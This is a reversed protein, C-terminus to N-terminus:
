LYILLLQAVYNLMLSTLIENASFHTKLFAVIAAWAMGGVIAFVIMLPILVIAPLDPSALALGGGFIAGMTFQGEAGINWLNARCALAIGTGILILPAAKVLLEPLGNQSLLPGILFTYLAAGPAKGFA